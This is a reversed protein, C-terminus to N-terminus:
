EITFTFTVTSNAYEPGIYVYNDYGMLGYNIDTYTDEKIWSIDGWGMDIIQIISNCVVNEIIAFDNPSTIQNSEDYPLTCKIISNNDEVTLYIVSFNAEQDGSNDFYEQSCKIQVTCTQLGGAAGGGASPLSAAVNKAANVRTILADLNANNTQLQTKNAM